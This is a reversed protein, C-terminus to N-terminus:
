RFLLLTCVLGNVAGVIPARGGRGGSFNGVEQGGVKNECGAVSTSM